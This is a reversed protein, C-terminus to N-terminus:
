CGRVDMIGEVIVCTWGGPVLRSDDPSMKTSLYAKFKESGAEKTVRDSDIRGYRRDQSMYWGLFSKTARSPTKTIRGQTDQEM